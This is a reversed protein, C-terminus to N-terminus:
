FFNELLREFVLCKNIFFWKDYLMIFDKVKEM